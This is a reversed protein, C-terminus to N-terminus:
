MVNLPIPSTLWEVGPVTWLLPVSLWFTTRFSSLKVGFPFLLKVSPLSLTLKEFCQWQDVLRTATVGMVISPSHTHDIVGLNIDLKISEFGLDWGQAALARDVSGGGWELKKILLLHLCFVNCLVSVGLDCCQFYLYLCSEQLSFDLLVWLQSRMLFSPCGFFTTYCM